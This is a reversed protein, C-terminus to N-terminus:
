VPVNEPLMGEQSFMPEKSKVASAFYFTKNSNEKLFHGCILM